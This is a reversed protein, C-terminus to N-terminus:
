EGYYYAMDGTRMLNGGELIRAEVDTPNIKIIRLRGIKQRHTEGNTGVTLRYVELEMKPALAGGNKPLALLAREPGLKALVQCRMLPKFEAEDEEQSGLILPTREKTKLEVATRSQPAPPHATPTSTDQPELTVTNTKPSSGAINSVTPEESAVGGGYHLERRPIGLRPLEDALAVSPLRAEHPNDSVAGTPSSIAQMAAVLHGTNNGVRLGTAEEVVKRAADALARLLIGQQDTGTGAETHTGSGEARKRLAGTVGDVMEISLVVSAAGTERDFTLGRVSGHVMLEAGLVDALLQLHGVGFPPRLGRDALEERVRNYDVLRYHGTGQLAGAVMTAAMIGFDAPASEITCRFDLVAVTPGAQQAGASAWSIVALLVVPAPWLGRGCVKNAAMLLIIRHGTLRM